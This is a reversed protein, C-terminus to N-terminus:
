SRMSSRLCVSIGTLRACVRRSRSSKLSYGTLLRALGGDLKEAGASLVVMGMTRLSPHGVNAGAYTPRFLPRLGVMAKIRAVHSSWSPPFPFGHRVTGHFCHFCNMITGRVSSKRDLKTAKDFQM